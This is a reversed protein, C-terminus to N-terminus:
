QKIDEKYPSSNAVIRGLIERCSKKTCDWRGSSAGRHRRLSCRLLDVEITLLRPV